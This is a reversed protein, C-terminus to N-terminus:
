NGKGGPNGKGPNGSGPNGVPDDNGPNGNGPNGKGPNGNGPNGNGPADGDGPLSQSTTSYVDSVKVGIGQLAIVVTGAVLAVLLAYEILDQAETRTILRRLSAGFKSPSLTMAHLSLLILVM